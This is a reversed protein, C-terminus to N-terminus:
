RCPGLVQSVHLRPRADGDQELRGIIEICAFGRWARSAAERAAPPGVFEPPGSTGDADTYLLARRRANLGGASPLFVGRSPCPAKVCLIGTAGVRLRQGAPEEDHALAAPLGSGCAAVFAMAEIACRATRAIRM